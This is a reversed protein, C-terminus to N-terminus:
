TMFFMKVILGHAEGLVKTQSLQIRVDISEPHDAAAQQRHLLAVGHRIRLVSAMGDHKSGGGRGSADCTVVLLSGFDDNATKNQILEAAERSSCRIRTHVM